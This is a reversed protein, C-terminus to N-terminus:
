VHLIMPRLTAATTDLREMAAQAKLRDEFTLERAAAAGGQILFSVALSVAVVVLRRRMATVEM